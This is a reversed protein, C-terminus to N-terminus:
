DKLDSDIAMRDGVGIKGPQLSCWINWFDVLGPRWKQCWEGRALGTGNDWPWWSPAWWGQGLTHQTSTWPKFPLVACPLSSLVVRSLVTPVSLFNGPSPNQMMLYILLLKFVVFRWTSGEQWHLDQARKLGALARSRRSPVVRPSHNLRRKQTELALGPVSEPLWMAVSRGAARQKGLTGLCSGVARLGAFDQNNRGVAFGGSGM